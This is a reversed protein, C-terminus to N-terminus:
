PMSRVISGTPRLFLAGILAASGMWAAGFLFALRYGEAAAIVPGVGSAVLSSTLEASFSGLLALGLSSSMLSTTNFIGSALGSENPQVESMAVLLLPNVALGIGAGLLVMNPLVDMVGAGVSTRTFLSLGLCGLLMGIVLPKKFGFRGVLVHSLGLSLTAAVISAPLFSLGVQIPSYGVVAQLHLAIFFSASAGAAWVSGVMSAIMLSRLHWVGPPILPIEVHLEIIAFATALVAATTLLGLTLVSHWGFETANSIGYVALVLSATLTIAGWIDVREHSRQVRTCPLASLCQACVAIGIPLNVLFIWRWSLGGALVGGLLLGFSGGAACTFGYISVARAREAGSAFMGTLLSVVLGAIVSGAVGQVARGVILISSTAALGCALSAATFLMTSAIFLKRQGYIDGLRSGLLLCGGFGLTYANVVWPLSSDTISLEKQISPLAVYVITADLMIMLMGGCLAIVTAWRKRTISDTRPGGEFPADKGM